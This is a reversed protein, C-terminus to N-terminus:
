GCTYSELIYMDKPTFGVASCLVTGDANIFVPFLTMSTWSSDFMSGNGTLDFPPVAETPLKFLQYNWKRTETWPNYGHASFTVTNGFRWASVTWGSAVNTVDLKVYPM